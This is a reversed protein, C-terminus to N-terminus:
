RRRVSRVPPPSPRQVEGNDNVYRLLWRRLYARDAPSLAVIAPKLVEFPISRIAAGPQSSTRM